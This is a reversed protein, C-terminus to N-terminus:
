GAQHEQDDEQAARDAGDRLADQHRKLTLVHRELPDEGRRVLEESVIGARAFANVYPARSVRDKEVLEERTQVRYFDAVLAAGIERLQESPADRIVLRLLDLDAKRAWELSLPGEVKGAGVPEKEEVPRLLRAAPVGLADALKGITKLRVHTRGTEAQTVTTPTVGARKALEERTWLRDERLRTILQGRIEDENM